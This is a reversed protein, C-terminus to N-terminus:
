NRRAFVYIFAFASLALAIVINTGLYYWFARSTRQSPFIDRPLTRGAGNPYPWDLMNLRVLAYNVIYWVLIIAWFAAIGNMVQGKQDSWKNTRTTMAVSICVILPILAHIIIDSFFFHPHTRLNAVRFWGWRVFFVFLNLLAVTYGFGVVTPHPGSVDSTALVAFWLASIIANWNTLHRFWNTFLAPGHKTTASMICGGLATALVIVLALLGSVASVISTTVPRANM